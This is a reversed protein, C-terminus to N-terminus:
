AIELGDGKPMSGIFCNANGRQVAIGIAQKLFSPARPDQTAETLRVALEKFFKAASPGYCGTTEVCIPYFYYTDTLHSYKTVKRLEAKEAARGAVNTSSRLNSLAFTDACTFDWLASRGNKWPILTLGDPRKGDTRSLGPPELVSPVGCSVLARKILDNVASHRAFRGSGKKCSLPHLGNTDVM